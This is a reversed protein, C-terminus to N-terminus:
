QRLHFRSHEQVQCNARGQVVCFFAVGKKELGVWNIVWSIGSLLHHQKMTNSHQSHYLYIEGGWSHINEDNQNHLPSSLQRRSFMLVVASSHDVHIIACCRGPPHSFLLCCKRNIKIRTDIYKGYICAFAIHFFFYFFHTQRM